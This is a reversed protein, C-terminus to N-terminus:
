LIFQALILLREVCGTIEGAPTSGLQICGIILRYLFDNVNFMGTQSHGSIRGLRYISIPLGRDRALDDVM